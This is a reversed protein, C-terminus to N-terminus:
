LVNHELKVVGIRPAEYGRVIINTQVLVDNHRHSYLNNILWNVAALRLDKSKIEIVGCELRLKIIPLFLAPFVDKSSPIYKEDQRLVKLLTGGDDKILLFWFDSLIRKFTDLYLSFM